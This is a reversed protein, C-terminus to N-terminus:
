VRMSLAFFSSMFDDNIHKLRGFLNKVFGRTNQIAQCAPLVKYVEPQVGYLGVCLVIRNFSKTLNYDRAAQRAIDGSVGRAGLLIAVDTKKSQRPEFLLHDNIKKVSTM